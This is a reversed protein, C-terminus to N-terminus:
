NNGHQLGTKLYLLSQYVLAGISPKSWISTEPDFTQEYKIWRSVERWEYMQSHQTLLMSPALQEAMLYGGGGGGGGGGIVHLQELGVFIEHTSTNQDKLEKLLKM